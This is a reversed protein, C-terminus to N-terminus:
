YIPFVTAPDIIRAVQDRSIGTMGTHGSPLEGSVTTGRAHPTDLVGRSGPEM